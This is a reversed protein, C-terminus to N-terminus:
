GATNPITTLTGGLKFPEFPNANNFKEFSAVLDPQERMVWLHYPLYGSSLAAGSNFLVNLKADGSPGLCLHIHPLGNNVHIPMPCLVPSINADHQCTRVFLPFNCVRKPPSEDGSETNGLM